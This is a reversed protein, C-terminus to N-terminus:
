TLKVPVSFGLHHAWATKSTTPVEHNSSVCDTELIKFRIEDIM